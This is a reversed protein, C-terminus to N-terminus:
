KDQQSGRAKRFVEVRFRNCLDDLTKDDFENLKFSFKIGSSTIELSDPVYFDQIERQTTDNLMGRKVHALFSAHKAKHMWGYITQKPMGYIDSMDSVSDGSEVKSLIENILDDSYKKNM